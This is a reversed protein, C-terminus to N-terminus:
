RKESQKEKKNKSYITYIFIIASVFSLIYALKMWITGSYRVTIKSNTCQPLTIEVFGNDSEYTTLKQKDGNESILTVEYGLYYIYPLELKSNAKAQQITIEMKTGQKYEEIISAEGELVYVIDKRDSIYDRNVFARHPLYEFSACGAHIRGTNKEIRPGDIITTEDFSDYTLHTNLTYTYALIILVLVLVDKYSFRKILFDLNIACVVSLFFVSFELFRWPFQFMGFIEPMKEYPFIKLSLLVCVFGFCLFTILLNRKERTLEKITLPTLALLILTPIGIVFVLLDSKEAVFLQKLKISQESASKLSGMRDPIFVDYTAANKHELLPITFFSTILLVFTLNVILAKIVQKNKLKKIHLLVYIFCFIATIVTAINHTLILGITGIALYYGKKPEEHFISYMGLFVLPLFVFSTLEAIAIRLYLDTLHYPAYMYLVAGIIAAKGNGTTKRIFQYMFLGSLFMTTLMFLKLMVVYSSTVLRFVLPLFATLPSYFISWSYGFNNALKPMILPIQQGDKLSDMTGILRYIHQIGDDKTINYNKFFLPICVIIALILLIVINKASEKRFFQKVKAIM